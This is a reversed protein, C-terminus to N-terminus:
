NQENIEPEPHDKLWQEKEEDTCQGNLKDSKNRVIIQKCWLTREEIGDVITSQYLWTNPSQPIQNFKM